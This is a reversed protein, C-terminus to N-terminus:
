FQVFAMLKNFTQLKEMACLSREGFTRYQGAGLLPVGARRSTPNFTM